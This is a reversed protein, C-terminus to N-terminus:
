TPMLGILAEEWFARYQEMWEAADRFAEGQAQLRRWQARARTILGVRELVKLTQNDPPLSMKGSLSRWISVNAEGRTLRALM